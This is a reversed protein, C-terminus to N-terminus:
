RKEPILFLAVHDFKDGSLIACNSCVTMSNLLKTMTSLFVPNIHFSLKEGTYSLKTSEEFCGSSCSCDVTMTNNEIEIHVFPDDHEKSFILAKDLIEPLEKPFDIGVGEKPMFPDLSPFDDEVLTRFSFVVGEATQLHIWAGEKVYSVFKYKSMHKAATDPILMWDSMNNEALYYRTLRKKDTSEVIGNLIHICKFIFEEHTNVSLLCFGVAENFDKPLDMYPTKPIMLDDIIPNIQATCKIGAKSRGAVIYLMGDTFQLDVEKQKIKKLVSLLPSGIVAATIGSQFPISVSISDNYSIIRDNKFIFSVAQEVIEKKALGPELLSLCNLLLVRDVKM